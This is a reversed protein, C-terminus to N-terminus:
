VPPLQSQWCSASHTKWTITCVCRWREGWQRHMSQRQSSGAQTCSCCISWCGPAHLSQWACRRRTPMSLLAALRPTWSRMLAEALRQVLQQSEVSEGALSRIDAPIGLLGFAPSRDAGADVLQEVAGVSGVRLSALLATTLRRGQVELNDGIADSVADLQAATIPLSSTIASYDLFGGPEGDVAAGADADSRPSGIVAPARHEKGGRM